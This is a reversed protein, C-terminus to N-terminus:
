EAFAGNLIVFRGLSGDKRAWRTGRTFHPADAPSVIPIGIFLLGVRKLTPKM